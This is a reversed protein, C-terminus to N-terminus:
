SDALQFNDGVCTQAAPKERATSGSSDDELGGVNGDKANAGSLSIPEIGAAPVAEVTM